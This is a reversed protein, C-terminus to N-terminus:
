KRWQGQPLRWIRRTRELHREPGGRRMTAAPTPPHPDGRKGDEPLAMGAGTGGGHSEQRVHRQRGGPREGTVEHGQKQREKRGPEGDRTPHGGWVGQGGRPEWPDEPPQPPPPERSALRAPVPRMHLGSGVIPEETQPHLPCLGCHGHSAGPPCASIASSDTPLSHGPEGQQGPQPGQPRTGLLGSSSPSPRPARLAAYGRGQVGISRRGAAERRRRRKLRREEGPM